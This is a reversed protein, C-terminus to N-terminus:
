DIEILSIVLPTGFSVLSYDVKGLFWCYFAHIIEYDILFLDIFLSGGPFERADVEKTLPVRIYVMVVSFLLSVRARVISLIYDLSNGPLGTTLVRHKWQWPTPEIGAWPVLIQLSNGMHWEHSMKRLSCFLYRQPVCIGFNQALYDKM